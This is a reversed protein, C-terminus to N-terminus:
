GFYGEFKMENHDTRKWVALAKEIFPVLKTKTEKWHAYYEKFYNVRKEENPHLEIKLSLREYYILTKVIVFMEEREDKDFVSGEQLSVLNSDPQIINELFDIYDSVKDSLNELLITIFEDEKEISFKGFEDYLENLSPLKYKEIQKEIKESM